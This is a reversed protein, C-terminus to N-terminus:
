YYMLSLSFFLFSLLVYPVHGLLSLLVYPVHGLLPLLVYPVHGLLSLLVYPVHGWCLLFGFCFIAWVFCFLLSLFFFVGSNMHIAGNCVPIDCVIYYVQKQRYPSSSVCVCIHVRIGRGYTPISGHSCWLVASNVAFNSVFGV